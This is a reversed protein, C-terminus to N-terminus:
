NQSIVFIVIALHSLKLGTVQITSGDAELLMNFCYPYQSSFTFNQMWGLLQKGRMFLRILSLLYKVQEIQKDALVV